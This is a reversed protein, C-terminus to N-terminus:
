MYIEVDDEIGIRQVELTQRQHKKKIFELNDLLFKVTDNSLMDFYVTNTVPNSFACFVMILIGLHNQNNRGPKGADM